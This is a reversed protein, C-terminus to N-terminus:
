GDIYDLVLSIYFAEKGLLLCANGEDKIGESVLYVQLHSGSSSDVLESNCAYPFRASFIQTL